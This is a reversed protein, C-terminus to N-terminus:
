KFVLAYTLGVIISGGVIDIIIHKTKIKKIESRLSKNEKDLLKFKSDTLSIIQNNKRDKEELISIINDNKTIKTELQFIQNIYTEEQKKLRDFENLDLLISKGVRAPINLTTSDVNKQSFLFTTLCIFIINLIYKMNITIDKKLHRILKDPTM